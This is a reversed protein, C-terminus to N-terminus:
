IGIVSQKSKNTEEATATTILFVPSRPDSWTAAAPLAPQDYTKRLAFALKIARDSTGGGLIALPERGRAHLKSVWSAADYSAAEQTLLSWARPRSGSAIRPPPVLSRAM